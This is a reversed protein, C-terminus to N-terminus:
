SKRESMINDLEQKIFIEIIEDTCCECLGCHKELNIFIQDLGARVIKEPPWDLDIPVLKTRM